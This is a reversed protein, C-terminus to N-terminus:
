LVFLKYNYTMDFHLCHPQQSQTGDNRLGFTNLAMKKNQGINYQLTHLSNYSTASYLFLNMMMMVVRTISALWIWQKHFYRVLHLCKGGEIANLVIGYATGLHVYGARETM